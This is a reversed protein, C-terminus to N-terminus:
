NRSPLCEDLIWQLVSLVKHPESFTLPIFNPDIIIDNDTLKLFAWSFANTVSGYIVKQFSEHRENFLQAAYMEAGCQGFGEEVDGKKAEVLAFIPSKIVPTHAIASFLFDCYGKLKLGSDVNFEYGSFYTFKNPNRKKLAQLIPTIILESKAKESALPVGEIDSLLQSLLDSPKVYPLVKPLFNYSKVNLGLKDELDNLKFKKFSM